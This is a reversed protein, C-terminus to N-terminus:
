DSYHSSRRRTAISKWQQINAFQRGDPGSQPSFQCPLALERLYNLFLSPTNLPPFTMEYNKRYSMVLDNVARHLEGGELSSYRGQLASQYSAPLRERM